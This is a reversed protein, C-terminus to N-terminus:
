AIIAIFATKGVRIPSAMPARMLPKLYCGRGAILARHKRFAPVFAELPHPRGRPSDVPGPQLSVQTSITLPDDRRGRELV